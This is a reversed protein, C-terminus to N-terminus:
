WGIAPPKIEARLSTKLKRRIEAIEETTARGRIGDHIRGVHPPIIEVRWKGSRHFEASEPLPGPEILIGADFSARYRLVAKTVSASEAHEEGIRPPFDFAIPIVGRLVIFEGTDAPWCVDVRMRECRAQIVVEWETQEAPLALEDDAGTSRTGAVLELAPGKGGVVAIGIVETGASEGSKTEGDRVASRQTEVAHEIVHRIVLGARVHVNM